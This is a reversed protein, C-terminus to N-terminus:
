QKKGISDAQYSGPKHKPQLAEIKENFLNTLETTAMDAGMKFGERYAKKEAQSKILSIAISILIVAVLGYWENFRIRFPKFSIAPGFSLYIIVLFAVTAIISKM